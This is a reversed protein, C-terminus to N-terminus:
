DILIKRRERKPPEKQLTGSQAAKLVACLGKYFEVNTEKQKGTGTKCDNVYHSLMFRAAATPQNLCTYAFSVDEARKGPAQLIEKAFLDTIVPSITRGGRGGWTAYILNITDYETELDFFDKYQERLLAGKRLHFRCLEIQNEACKEAPDLFFTVQCTIFEPSSHNVEIQAKFYQVCDTATYPIRETESLLLIRDQYKLIGPSVALENGEVSIQCGSLIGSGYDQYSLRMQDYSYDRIASLAEKKLIRNEKFLPYSGQM